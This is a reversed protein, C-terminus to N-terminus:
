EISKSNVKLTNVLMQTLKNTFQKSDFVCDITLYNETKEVGGCVDGRCDVLEHVNVCGCVNDDIYTLSVEKLIYWTEYIFIGKELKGQEEHYEADNGFALYGGGVVTLYFGSCSDVDHLPHPNYHLDFDSKDLGLESLFYEVQLMTSLKGKLNEMNEFM